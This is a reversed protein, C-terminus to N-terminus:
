YSFAHMKYCLISEFDNKARETFNGSRELNECASNKGRYKWLKGPMWSKPCGHSQGKDPMALSKM